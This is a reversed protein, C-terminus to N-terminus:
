KRCHFAASTKIGGRTVSRAAMRRNLPLVFLARLKFEVFLWSVRPRCAARWGSAAILRETGRREGQQVPVFEPPSPHQSVFLKGEGCGSSVRELGSCASREVGGVAGMSWICQVERLALRPARVLNCGQEGFIKSDRAPDEQQAVEQIASKLLVDHSSGSGV